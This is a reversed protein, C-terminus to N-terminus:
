GARRAADGVEGGLEVRGVHAVDAPVDLRQHAVRLVNTLGRCFTRCSGRPPRRRSFLLGGLEGRADLLDGARRGVERQQALVQLARALLDDLAVGRDLGEVRLERFQLVRVLGGAGADGLERGTQLAGDFPPQLLEISQLGTEVSHLLEHPRSLVHLVSVGTQAENFRGRKISLWTGRRCGAHLGRRRPAVGAEVAVDAVLVAADRDGAARVRMGDLAWAGDRRVNAVPPRNRRKRALTAMLSSAPRAAVCAFKMTSASPTSAPAAENTV